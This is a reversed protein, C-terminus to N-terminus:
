RAAPQGSQMLNGLLAGAVNALQAVQSRVQEPPIKAYDTPEAFIEAPATTQINGMETVVRVGKVQNGQVNTTSSSEAATESRLPLGTEKDVLVFSQTQVQGAQSKTDTVTGYRYRIATRGNFQEEGVREVGRYSHARQVLQGPTMIDRVQFGVADSTVEAYQKRNPLVLFRKDALDLYVVKEGNPLSFEMRKNAGNRAVQAVLPPLDM